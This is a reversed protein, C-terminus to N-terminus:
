SGFGDYNLIKDRSDIIGNGLNEVLRTRSKNNEIVIYANGFQNFFGVAHHFGRGLGPSFLALFGHFILRKYIQRHRSVLLSGVLM